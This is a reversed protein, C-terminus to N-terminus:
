QKLCKGRIHICHVRSLNSGPERISSGSVMVRIKRWVSLLLHLYYNDLIEKEIIFMINLKFKLYPDYLPFKLIQNNGNPLFHM